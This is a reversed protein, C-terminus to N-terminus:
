EYEITYAGDHVVAELAKLITEHTVGRARLYVILAAEDSFHLTDIVYNLDSQMIHITLM